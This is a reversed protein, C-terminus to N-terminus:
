SHAGRVDADCVCYLYDANSNGSNLASKAVLVDDEPAPQQDEIRQHAASDAL